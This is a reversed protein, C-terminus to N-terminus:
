RGMRRTANNATVDNIKAVVRPTTGIKVEPSPKSAVKTIPTKQRLKNIVIFPLESTIPILQGIVRVNKPTPSIGTNSKARNM